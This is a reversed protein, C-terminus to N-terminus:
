QELAQRWMMEHAACHDAVGRWHDGHGQVFMSAWPELRERHSRELLDYMARARTALLAPLEERLGADAGYGDIIARLRSAGEDPTQDPGLTAFAQASYALDWARTSPGAGDWDIFVWRDPGVVLNWPTADNHCILTPPEPPPLLGTPWDDLREPGIAQESADHISRLLRGIRSLEELDLPPLDLALDGPVFETVARGQDDRGFSRPVDIGATRLQETWNQVLASHPLWPKRVTSGLKPDDVRVVGATANGGTLEHEHDM